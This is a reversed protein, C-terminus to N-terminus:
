YPLPILRNAVGHQTTWGRDDAFPNPADAADLLTWCILLVDLWRFDNRFVIRLSPTTLELRVLPM